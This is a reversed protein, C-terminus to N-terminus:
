DEEMPFFTRGQVALEPHPEDPSKVESIEDLYLEPPDDATNLVVEQLDNSRILAVAALEASDPDSAELYFNQYFGLKREVGNMRILFNEGM